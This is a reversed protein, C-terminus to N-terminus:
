KSNILVSGRRKMNLSALKLVGKRDRENRKPSQTTNEGGINRENDTLTSNEHEERNIQHTPQSRNSIGNLSNDSDHIITFSYDGGAQNPLIGNGINTKQQTLTDKTTASLLNPYHIQHIVGEVEAPSSCLVKRTFVISDPCKGAWNPPGM